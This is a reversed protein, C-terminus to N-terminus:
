EGQIYSNLEYEIISKVLILCKGRDNGINCADNCKLCCVMRMNLPHDIVLSGWLKRNTATNAILHAGQVEEGLPGNCVACVGGSVALAYQRQTM